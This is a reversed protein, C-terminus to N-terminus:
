AQVIVAYSGAALLRKGDISTDTLVLATLAGTKPDFEVDDVKGLDVGASSLVLKGHERFSKDLLEALRGSPVVLVDEHKIMVADDGFADVSDWPITDEKGSTKKLVIAALTKQRPDIIYDAIRGVTEATSTSVVKRGAAESFKM